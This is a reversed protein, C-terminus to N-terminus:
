SRLSSLLRTYSKYREPDITGSELADKVACGPEHTHTCVPFKCNELYATFEDFFLALEERTVDWIAFERIGPTDMIFGGFPLRFMRAFTTIHQGKRTNKKQDATVQLDKGFLANIITSKGTGSPGSLVTTKDAILESLSQMNWKQTASICVVPIGLTEAYTSLDNRVQAEHGLDIKNVCLMPEIEGIKAAILYRDILAKKYKPEDVSVVILLRDVNAGIVQEMDGRGASRRALKSKREEVLIIIAIPENDGTEEVTDDTRIWVSDGVALLSADANETMISRSPFCKYITTDAGSGAPEVIYTRGEVAIVRGNILGTTDIKRREIKSSLVKPHIDHRSSQRGKTKDKLARKVKSSRTIRNAMYNQSSDQM